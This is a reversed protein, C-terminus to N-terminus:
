DNSVGEDAVKMTGEEGLLVLKALEVAARYAKGHVNDGHTLQVRELFDEDQVGIQCGCNVRLQWTDGQRVRYFDTMGNRSGIPGVRFIMGGIADRLNADSLNAGILSAGSLNAGSLNAGILSAGRLNARSLNADSLNAGSLGAGSLNAGSLNARRLNARSLNAGRLNAGSLNARVPLWLWRFDREGAEHMQKIESPTADWYVIHPAKVAADRAARIDALTRIKDNMEDGKDTITADREDPKQPLTPETAKTDEYSDM